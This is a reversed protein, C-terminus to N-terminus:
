GRQEWAVESVKNRAKAGILRSLVACHFGGKEDQSSVAAAAAVVLTFVLLANTRSDTQGLRIDDKGDEQVRSDWEPGTRDLNGEQAQATDRRRQRERGRQGRGEDGREEGM